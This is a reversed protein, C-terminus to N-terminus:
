ATKVAIQRPKASEAKPVRVALRGAEYKAVAKELDLEDPLQVSRSFEGFPRKAGTTGQPTM